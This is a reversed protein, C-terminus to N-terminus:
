CSGPTRARRQFGIRRDCEHTRQAHRRILTTAEKSTSKFEPFQGGGSVSVVQDTAGNSVQLLISVNLQLGDQSLKNIAGSFDNVCDPHSDAFIAKGVPNSSASTPRSEM